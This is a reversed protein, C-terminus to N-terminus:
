QRKRVQAVDLGVRCRYQRVQAYADVASKCPNNSSLSNFLMAGAAVTGTRGLGAACHIIPRVGPQRLFDLIEVVASVGVEGDPVDHDPWSTVEFHTVQFFQNTFIM